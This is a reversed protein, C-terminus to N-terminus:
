IRGREHYNGASEATSILQLAVRAAADVPPIPLTGITACPAAQKLREDLEADFFLSRGIMGGTKALLFSVDQIGFLEVLMEVLQALEVTADRLLQRAVEDGADGASAILPFVRPFIEDPATRAGEQVERWSPCKLHRLIQKGLPSDVRTTDRARLALVIARRGIDYASGQDSILPGYGGVRALHGESDWGVAASGTGAVLVIAPFQGTAELTIALDTVVCLKSEPFIKKIAAYVKTAAEPHRTGALGACIGAISSLELHAEEFV